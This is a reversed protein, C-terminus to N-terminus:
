EESRRSGAPLGLVAGRAFTLFADAVVRYQWGWTRLFRLWNGPITRALRRGHRLHLSTYAVNQLMALHKAYELSAAVPETVEPPLHQTRAAPVYVGRFRHTLRLSFELDEGRVWYDTRHGGLEELARRSVLLAIGQSWSFAVPADGCRAIFEDATQRGRIARFKRPDLLGPFWGLMGDPGVVLPHAVDAGEAHMAELLKDLTDPTVIADDDLIWLYDFDAGFTDFAIKEALNLGGGCGLNEGPARYHSPISCQAVTERTASDGANDVVIIGTLARHSQELSHLLRALEVPRRYTATIAVVSSVSM